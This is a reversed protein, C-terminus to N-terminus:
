KFDIDYEALGDVDEKFSLENEQRYFDFRIDRTTGEVKARFHTLELTTHCDLDDFPYDTFHDFSVNAKTEYRITYQFMDITDGKADSSQTKKIIAGMENKVSLSSENMRVKLDNMLHNTIETNEELGTFKIRLIITAMIELQANISDLKEVRKLVVASSCPLVIDGNALHRPLKNFENAQSGSGKEIDSANIRKFSDTM